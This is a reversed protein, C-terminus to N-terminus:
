KQNTNKTVCSVESANSDHHTVVWKPMHLTICNHHAPLRWVAQIILLNSGKLVIFAQIVLFISSAEDLKLHAVVVVCEVKDQHVM